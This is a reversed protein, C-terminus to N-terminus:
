SKKQGRKQRVTETLHHVAMVPHVYIMRPGSYRMVTRIKERMRPEYCHVKCVTCFTKTEMFPCSDIRGFAYDRLKECEACLEHKRTHHNGHCYMAIMENVTKKENERKQDKNM